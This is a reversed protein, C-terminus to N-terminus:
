SWYRLSYNCNQTSRIIPTTSVRFMYLSSASYYISQKTNCRTRCNNLYKESINSSLTGCGVLFLNEYIPDRKIASWMKAFFCRLFCTVKIVEIILWCKCKYLNWMFCNFGSLISRCTEIKKSRWWPAINKRALTINYCESDLENKKFLTNHCCIEVCCSM